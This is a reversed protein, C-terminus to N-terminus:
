TQRKGTAATQCHSTFRAGSALAAAGAVVLLLMLRALLRVDSVLWATSSQGRLDDMLRGVCASWCPVTGGMWWDLQWGCLSAFLYPVMVWLMLRALPHVDSM